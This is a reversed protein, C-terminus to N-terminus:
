LVTWNMRSNRSFYVILSRRNKLRRGSLFPPWVGHQIQCFVLFTSGVDFLPSKCDGVVQFPGAAAPYVAAGQLPM